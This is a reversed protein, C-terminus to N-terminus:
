IEGLENVNATKAMIRVEGYCTQLGEAFHQTEEYVFQEIDYEEDSWDKSIFNKRAHQQILTEAAENLKYEDEFVGMLVLSSSSLWADGEYLLFVTKM